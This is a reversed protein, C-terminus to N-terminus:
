CLHRGVGSGVGRSGARYQLLRQRGNPQTKWCGRTPVRGSCFFPDTLSVLAGRLPMGTRLNLIQGEIFISDALAASSLALGLVVLVVSLKM